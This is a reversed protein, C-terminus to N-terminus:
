RSAAPEPVLAFSAEMKGLIEGIEAWPASATPTVALEAIGEGPVVVYTLQPILPSENIVARGTRELPLLHEIVMKLLMSTEQRAYHTRARQMATATPTKTPVIEIKAKCYSATAIWRKAGEQTVVWTAPTVMQVSGFRRQLEFRKDVQEINAYTRYFQVAQFGCAIVAAVAVVFEARRVHPAYRRPATATRPRMWLGLAAGALLGGIHAANDIQPIIVGMFVNLAVLPLLGAGFMAQYRVPVDRRHRFGYVVLMGVLGFIAGSAGVMVGRAMAMSALAAVVGCLVYVLVFRVSGYLRELTQGMVLLGMGNILMHAYGAHLFTATVLRWYQGLGILGDVKAGCRILVDVDRSGGARETAYWVVLNALLLAWVATPRKLLKESFSREAQWSKVQRDSAPTEGVSSWGTKLLKAFLNPEPNCPNLASNPAPSFFRYGSQFRKRRPSVWFFGVERLPRKGIRVSRLRGRASRGSLADEAILVVSVRVSQPGAHAAMAETVVDLYHKRLDGSEFAHRRSAELVTILIVSPTGYSDFQVLREDFEGLKTDLEPWAVQAPFYGQKNQLETSAARRFVHEMQLPENTM